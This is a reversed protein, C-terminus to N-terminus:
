AFRQIILHKSAQNANVLQVAQGLVELQRDVSREFVDLADSLAMDELTHRSQAQKADAGHDIAESHYRASVMGCAAGVGTAAPSVVSAVTGVDSALQTLSTVRAAASATSALGGASVATGIAAGPVASAVATGASAAASTGASSAGSVAGAAGGVNGAAITSVAAAIGLGIAVNPPIGLEKAYKSAITCAIAITALVAAAGGTAVAAAAIVVIQALTAIDRSFFDGIAGLFGSDKEAESAKRLADRVQDWLDKLELQSLQIDNEAVEGQVLQHQVMLVLM